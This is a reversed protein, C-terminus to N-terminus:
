RWGMQVEGQKKEEGRVEPREWGQIKRRLVRYELNWSGLRERGVSGGM